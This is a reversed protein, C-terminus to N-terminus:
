HGVRCTVSSLTAREMTTALGASAQPGSSFSTRPLTTSTRLPEQGKTFFASSTCAAPPRAIITPLMWGYMTRMTLLATVIDGSTLEGNM